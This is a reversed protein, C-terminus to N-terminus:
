NKLVFSYLEEIVKLSMEKAKENSVERVKKAPYKDEIKAKIVRKLGKEYSKLLNQSYDAWIEEFWDKKVTFRKNKMLKSFVLIVLISGLGDKSNQPKYNIIGDNDDFTLYTLYKKIQQDSEKAGKFWKKTYLINLIETFEISFDNWSIYENFFVTLKFRVESFAYCIARLGIDLRILEDIESKVKEFELKIKIYESNIFEEQDIPGNHSGFKLKILAHAANGGRKKIADKEIKRAKEIYIKYPHFNELLQKLGPFVLMNFQQRIRSSDSNSIAVKPGWADLPPVLDTLGLESAQENSGDDKLIYWNFLLYMEEVSKLSAPNEVQKKNVVKNQWDYFYLPIINNKRKDIDELDNKHSYELLEQVCLANVSEDNLIIERSRNIRESKSNIYVFTKRVIDILSAVKKSKDVQLINLIVVPIRWDDFNSDPQDKWRKLASLRHQGDIAVLYNKKDNWEIEAINDETKLLKIKYYGEREYITEPEWYDANKNVKPLLYEINKLINRKLNDTPLLILTIPSFYKIKNEDQFYPIIENEVREHDIERQFLDRVSWKESEPINSILHIADLEIASIVTEIFLIDANEGKGLNGYVGLKRQNYPNIKIAPKKINTTM